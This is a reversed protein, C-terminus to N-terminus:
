PTPPPEQVTFWQAGTAGRVVLPESHRVQLTSGDAFTADVVIVVNRPEADLQALVDDFSTM